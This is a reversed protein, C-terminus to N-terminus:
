IEESSLADDLKSNLSDMKENILRVLKEKEERERFLEDAINLSTLIAVKLPSKVALGKDIEDMKEDVYSAVQQIYDVDTNGKIPYEAGHITVRVVNKTM